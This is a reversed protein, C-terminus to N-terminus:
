PAKSLEDQMLDHRCEATRAASLSEGLGGWRLSTGKGQVVIGLALGDHLLIEFTEAREAANVVVLTSLQALAVQLAAHLPVDHWPLSPTGWSVSGLLLRIAGSEIRLRPNSSDDLSLSCTASVALLEDFPSLDQSSSTVSSVHVPGGSPPLFQDKGPGPSGIVCNSLDM